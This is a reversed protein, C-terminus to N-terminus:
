TKSYKCMSGAESAIREFIDKCISNLTIMGSKKVMLNSAESGKLTKYIYSQFSNHSPKKARTGDKKVRGTMNTKKSASRAGTKAPM